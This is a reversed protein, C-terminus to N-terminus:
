APTTLVPRSNRRGNPPTYSMRSSHQEGHPGLDSCGGRGAKQLEQQTAEQKEAPNVTLSLSLWSSLAEAM